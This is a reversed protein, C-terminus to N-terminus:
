GNWPLVYHYSGTGVHKGGAPCVNAKSAAWFLSACRNCWAWGVQNGSTPAPPKPPTNLAKFVYSYAVDKDYPVTNEYQAIDIGAPISDKDNWDAQFLYYHSRPIGANSCASVVAAINSESAYLGPLNLNPPKANIVFTPAQAPTADGNEIDLTDAGPIESVSPTIGMYLKGPFKAKTATGNAFSGASYFCLFDSNTELAANVSDEGQLITM